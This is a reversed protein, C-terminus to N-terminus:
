ADQATPVTYVFVQQNGSVSDNLPIHTVEIETFAFKLEEVPRDGGSVEKISVIRAESLQVKLYMVPRDQPDPRVWQITVTDMANRQCKEWLIASARDLNRTVTVDRVQLANFGLRSRVASVAADFQVGQRQGGWHFGLAPLWGDGAALQSDAPAGPIHIMMTM